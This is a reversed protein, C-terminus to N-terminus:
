NTQSSTSFEELGGPAKPTLKIAQPWAETGKRTYSMTHTFACGTPLRPEAFSNLESTFEDTHKLAKAKHKFM